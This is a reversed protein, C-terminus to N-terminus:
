FSNGLIFPREFSTAVYALKLFGFMSTLLVQQSPKQDASQFAYSLSVVIVRLMNRAKEHFYGQSKM